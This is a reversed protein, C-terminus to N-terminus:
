RAVGARALWDRSSSLPLWRPSTLSAPVQVVEVWRSAYGDLVASSVRVDGASQLGAQMAESAEWLGGGSRVLCVTRFIAATWRMWRRAILRSGVAREDDLPRGITLPM